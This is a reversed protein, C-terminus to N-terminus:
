YLVETALFDLDEESIDSFRMGLSYTISSGNVEYVEVRVVEAIAFIAYNCDPIHIAIELPAGNLTPLEDVLILAGGFSLNKAEGQISGQHNIIAVPYSVEVRTYQRKQVGVTKRDVREPSTQQSTNEPVLKGEANMSEM